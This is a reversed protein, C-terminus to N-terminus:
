KLSCREEHKMKLALDDERWLSHRAPFAVVSFILSKLFIAKQQHSQLIVLLCRVMTPLILKKHRLMLSLLIFM